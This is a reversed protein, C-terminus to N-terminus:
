KNLIRWAAPYYNNIRGQLIKIIGLPLGKYQLISWGKHSAEIHIEKKRLFDLATQENVKVLPLVPAMAKSLVLDHSPILQDRILQGM